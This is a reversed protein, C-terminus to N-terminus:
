EAPLEIEAKPEPETQIEPQEANQQVSASDDDFGSEPAPEDMTAPVGAQEEEPRKMDFTIAEAPVSEVAKPEEVLPAPNEVASM